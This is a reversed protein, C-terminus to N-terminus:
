KINTLPYSNLISESCPRWEIGNVTMTTFGFTGPKNANNDYSKLVANYSAKELAAQVHMKAFEIMYEAIEYESLEDLYMPDSGYTQEWKILQFKLATPIM